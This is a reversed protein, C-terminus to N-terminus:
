FFGQLFVCVYMCLMVWQYNYAYKKVVKSPLLLGEQIYIRGFRALKVWKSRLIRELIYLIGPGLFWKWFHTAHLILLVYWVM